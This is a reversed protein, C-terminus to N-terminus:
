ARPRVDLTLDSAVLKKQGRFGAIEEPALDGFKLRLLVEQGADDKSNRLIHAWDQCVSRGNKAPEIESLFLEVWLWGTRKDEDLQLSILAVGLTRATIQIERTLQDNLGFRHAPYSSKHSTSSLSGFELSLERLMQGPESEIPLQGVHFLNEAVSQDGIRQSGKEPIANLM